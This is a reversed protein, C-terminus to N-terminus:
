GRGDITAAQARRKSSPKSNDASDNEVAKTPLFMKCLSNWRENGGDDGWEM